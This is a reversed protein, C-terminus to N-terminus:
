HVLKLGMETVMGDVLEDHPELPLTTKIQSHFCVGLSQAHLFEEALLRDYFGGGRGLRGGSREAFALGPILAIEIDDVEILDCKKPDPELLKGQGPVLHKINEVAYLALSKREMKPFCFTIHGLDPDDLLPFLDPESSLSAFMLVTSADTFDKFELLHKRIQKSKEERAAASLKKLDSIIEKRAAQKNLRAEKFCGEPRIFEEETLLAVPSNINSQRTSYLSANM